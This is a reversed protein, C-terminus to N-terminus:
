NCSMSWSCFSAQENTGAMSLPLGLGASIRGGVVTLDPLQIAQAGVFGIGGGTTYSQGSLQQPTARAHGIGADYSLDFGNEVKGSSSYSGFEAKWGKHHFYYGEETTYGSGLAGTGEAGIMTTSPTNWWKSISSGIKMISNGIDKFSLDGHEDNFWRSFAGM